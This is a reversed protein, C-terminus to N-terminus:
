RLYTRGCTDCVAYVAHVDRAYGAAHLFGPCDAAPCKWTWWRADDGLPTTESAVKDRLGEHAAYTTELRSAREADPESSYPYNQSVNSTV